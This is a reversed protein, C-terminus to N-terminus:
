ASDQIGWWVGTSSTTCRSLGVRIHPEIHGIYPMNNAFARTSFWTQQMTPRMGSCNFCMMKCSELVYQGSTWSSAQGFPRRRKWDLSMCFATSSMDGITLSCRAIILLMAFCANHMYKCADYEDSFSQGMATRSTPVHSQMKITITCAMKRDQVKLKWLYCILWQKSKTQLQLHLHVNPFQICLEIAIPPKAFEGLLVSFSPAFNRSQNAIPLSCNMAKGLFALLLRNFLCHLKCKGFRKPVCFCRAHGLKAVGLEPTKLM